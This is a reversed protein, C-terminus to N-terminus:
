RRQYTIALDDRWVGDERLQTVAVLTDDDVFHGEFRQPFSGERVYCWVGDDVDVDYVGAVGRSDFYSLRLPGADDDDARDSGIRGVIAIADPFDPHDTRSRHLLFRGGELWEVDVEGTVVVGPFMPHTAATSWRGILPQLPRLAPEAAATKQKSFKKKQM